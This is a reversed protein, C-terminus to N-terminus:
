YTDCDEVNAASDYTYYSHTVDDVCFTFTTVSERTVFKLTAIGKKNTTATNTYNVDGSFIGTVEAGSVPKGNEDEITVKATGENRPGKSKLSLEISLVHMNGESIGPVLWQEVESYYNAFAGDVMANSASDCVDIINTGCIGTLQGVVQASANVVPSGSSGPETAGIVNRSYIWKGRPWNRCTGAATDVSHESYAQPSGRPHSIRYLETGHSNAVEAPTWGLFVSGAPPDQWLQMFTYDSQRSASLIDAGLTWPVPDVALEDCASECSATRYQWYCEVSDAEKQRRICHNATVFYPIYTIPDTDEILGGSCQYIWAGSVFQILAVADKLTNVPNGLYCSADVVCWAHDGCLQNNESPSPQAPRQFLALKFKETLHGIDKVLFHIAHLIRNTAPGDYRLQIYITSGFITHSWFDRRNRLGMFTYPGFAMGEDNYV